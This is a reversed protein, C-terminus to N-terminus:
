RRTAVIVAENGEAFLLTETTFGVAHFASSIEEPRLFHNGQVHESLNQFATMRRRPERLASVDSPWAPEWIVVSGEPRVADRLLAFVRQQDHWVHHLARNMVVVDVPEKPSFSFLDGAEFSLRAALGQEAARAAAQRTNEEFGDLGLGRLGPFRRALARLYWGNGCGLDVVFRAQEFVKLRPLVEREFFGAFNAELMPGFWPLISEREGLVSEGPRECTKMLGVTREMMHAGLVAQVAMPMLTGAAGPRFALGLESAKWAGDPTADLYGFAFAAEAWRRLYGADLGRRQAVAEPSSAEAFADFLGHAVGVFALSMAAAGQAQQMVRSKLEDHM